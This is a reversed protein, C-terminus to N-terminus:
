GHHPLMETLRKRYLSPDVVAAMRGEDLRGGLFHNVRRAQGAPDQIVDHFRVDLLAVNSQREAWERVRRLQSAFLEALREPPLDAGREGLRDLMARQSALVKGPHRDMLVVRYVYGGPLDPLLLHVLKVARAV